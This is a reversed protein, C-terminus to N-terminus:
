PQPATDSSDSAPSNNLFRTYLEKFTLVVIAGDDANIEWEDQEPLSLDQWVNALVYAGFKRCQEEAYQEMASYILHPLVTTGRSLDQLSLLYKELWLQLMDEKTM